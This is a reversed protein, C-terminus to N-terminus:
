CISIASNYVWKATIGRGYDKDGKNLNIFRM